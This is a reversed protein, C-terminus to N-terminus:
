NTRFIQLSRPTSMTPRYDISRQDGCIMFISKVAKEGRQNQIFGVYFCGQASYVSRPRIRAGNSWSGRNPSNRVYQQSCWIAAIGSITSATMQNRCKDTARRGLLISGHRLMTQVILEGCVNFVILVPEDALTRLNWSLSSEHWTVQLHGCVRRLAPWPLREWEEIALPRRGLSYPETPRRVGNVKKLYLLSQAWTARRTNIRPNM